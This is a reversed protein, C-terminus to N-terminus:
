KQLNKIKGKLKVNEDFLNECLLQRRILERNLKKKDRNRKVIESM